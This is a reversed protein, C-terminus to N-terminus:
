AVGGDMRDETPARGWFKRYQNSFYMADAFGTEAAIRKMPLTTEQVLYRARRLRLRGLVTQVTEGTQKRFLLRFHNPSLALTRYFAALAEPDAYHRELWAVARAIEPHMMRAEDGGAGESKAALWFASLAAKLEGECGLMRGRTETAEFWKLIREFRRRETRAEVVKRRFLVPPVTVSGSSFECWLLRCGRSTATWERRCWAPVYIQEGAGVRFTRGEITYDLDGEEILIFRHTVVVTDPANWRAGFAQRNAKTVRLPARLLAELVDLRDIIESM